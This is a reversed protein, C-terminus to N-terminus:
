AIRRYVTAQTVAADEVFCGDTSDILALWSRDAALANEAQEMETISEYGTFWAVGGYPGTLSRAFLTSLGTIAESKQAIEVGATMAREFNGSAALAVVGGVYQLSRAPDPEGYVPQLLGDDLGGDLLEAGEAELETMAPDATLKDGAAELAALDAFWATWSITGVGPSFMTAWLEVDQGTVQKVKSSISAAWDVGATGAGVLRARRTFLYM